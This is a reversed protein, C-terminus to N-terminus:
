ICLFCRANLMTSRGTDQSSFLISFSSIKTSYICKKRAHSSRFISSASCDMHLLMQVWLCGSSMAHGESHHWM